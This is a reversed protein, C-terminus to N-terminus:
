ERAGKKAPRIRQLEGEKSPKIWATTDVETGVVADEIVQKQRNEIVGYKRELLEAVEHHWRPQDTEPDLYKSDKSLGMREIGYPTEAEVILAGNQEYVELVTFKM